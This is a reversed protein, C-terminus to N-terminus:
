TLTAASRAKAEMKAKVKLVLLERSPVIKEKEMKGKEEAKRDEKEKLPSTELVKAQVRIKLDTISLAVIAKRASAM